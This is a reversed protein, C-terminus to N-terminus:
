EIPRLIEDRLTPPAPEGGEEEWKAEFRDLTERLLLSSPELGVARRQTEVALAFERRLFYVHALTDWVASSDPALSM